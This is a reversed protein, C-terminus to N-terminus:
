SGHPRGRAIGALRCQAEVRAAIADPRALESACWSRAAAGCRELVGGGTSSPVVVSVCGASSVPAANSGLVAWISGGIVAALVAAVIWRQRSSLPRSTREAHRVLVM